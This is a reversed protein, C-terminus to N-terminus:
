LPTGYDCHYIKTVVVHNLEKRIGWERMAGLFDDWEVDSIGYRNLLSQRLVVHNCYSVTSQDIGLMSPALKNNIKSITHFISFPTERYFKIRLIDLVENSPEHMYSLVVGQLYYTIRETVSMHSYVAYTLGCKIHDLDGEVAGFSRLIAGLNLAMVVEGNTCMMPSRKLFQINETSLCSDYTIEHGVRTFGERYLRALDVDDDGNRVKREILSHSCLNGLTNGINNVGTTQACGSGMYVTTPKIEIYESTNFPNSVRIPQALSEAACTSLSKSYLDAISHYMSFQGIDVGTDNSAIDVNAYVISDHLRTGVVTDDSFVLAYSSGNDCISLHNTMRNYAETAGHISTDTVVDVASGRLNPIVYAFYTRPSNVQNLYIIGSVTKKVYEAIVATSLILPGYTVFLRGCKGYKALEFKFGAVPNVKPKAVAKNYYREMFSIRQRHKDHPMMSTGVILEGYDDLHALKLYLDAFAWKGLEVLSDLINISRYKMEYFYNIAFQDVEQILNTFASSKVEHITGEYFTIIEHDIKRNGIQIIKGDEEIVCKFKDTQLYILDYYFADQSSRYMSEYLISTRCGLIRKLAATVNLPNHDPLMFPTKGVFRGFISLKYKPPSNSYTTNFFPYQLEGDDMSRWRFGKGTLIFDGARMEYMPPPTLVGFEVMPLEPFTHVSYSKSHEYLPVTCSTVNGDFLSQVYLLASKHMIAHTMEVIFKQPLHSCKNNISRSVMRSKGASYATYGLDEFVETFISEIITYCTQSYLSCGDLEIVKIETQITILDDGVDYAFCTLPSYAGIVQIANYYLDFCQIGDFIIYPLGDKYKVPLYKPVKKEKGIICFHENDYGMIIAKVDDTGTYEGHAGNIFDTSWSCALVICLILFIPLTNKLGKAISRKEEKRTHKERRSAQKMEITKERDLKRRAIYESYRETNVYMVREPNFSYEIYPQPLGDKEFDLLIANVLNHKLDVPKLFYEVRVPDVSLTQSHLANQSKNYKARNYAELSVAPRRNKRYKTNWLNYGEFGLLKVRDYKVVEQGGKSLSEHALIEEEYSSLSIESQYDSDSEYDYEELLCNNNKYFNVQRSLNNFKLTTM